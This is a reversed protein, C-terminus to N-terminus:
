KLGSMHTIIRQETAESHLLEGTLSGEYLVLIRDCLSINEQMESSVM